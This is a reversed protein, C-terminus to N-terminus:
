DELAGACIHGTNRCDARVVGDCCRNASPHGCSSHTGGGAILEYLYTKRQHGSLRLIQLDVLSRMQLYATFTLLVFCVAVAPGSFSNTRTSLVLQLGSVVISSTFLLNRVRRVAAIKPQVSVGAQLSRRWFYNLSGTVGLDSGVSLLGLASMSLAYLAYENLPMTRVFILGALMGMAQSFGQALGFEVITAILRRWWDLKQERGRKMGTFVIRRELFLRMVVVGDV